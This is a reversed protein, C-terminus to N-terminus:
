LFNPIRACKRIFVALYVITEQNEGIGAPIPHDTRFGAGIPKLSPIDHLIRVEPRAIRSEGAM